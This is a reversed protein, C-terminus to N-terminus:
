IYSEGAIATIMVTLRSTFTVAHEIDVTKGGEASWRDLLETTLQTTEEHVLKNNKDSFSPGAIRRHRKWEDFDAAIINPGYITIPEFMVALKPYELRKTMM